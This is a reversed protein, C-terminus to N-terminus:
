WNPAGLTYTEIEKSAYCFLNVDSDQIVVPL